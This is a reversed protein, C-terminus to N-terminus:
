LVLFLHTRTIYIVHLPTIHQHPSPAFGWPSGPVYHVTRDPSGSSRWQLSSTQASGVCPVLMCGPFSLLFKLGPSWRWCADPDTPKEPVRKGDKGVRQGCRWSMYLKKMGLINTQPLIAERYLLYWLSYPVWRPVRGGGLFWGRVGPEAGWSQEQAGPIGSRRPLERIGFLSITRLRM